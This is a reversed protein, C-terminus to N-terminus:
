NKFCFVRIEESFLPFVHMEAFFLLFCSNEDLFLSLICIQGFLLSFSFFANKGLYLCYVHMEVQCLQIQSKFFFVRLEVLVLLINANRCFILFFCANKVWFSTLICIQGFVLSFSFFVYKGWICAFSVNIGSMVLNLKQLLFCAFVANRGWIM